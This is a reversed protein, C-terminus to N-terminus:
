QAKYYFSGNTLSITYSPNTSLYMIGAFTGVYYDNLMDYNTINVQGSKSYFITNSTTSSIVFRNNATTNSSDHTFIGLGKSKICMFFLMTDNPTQSDYYGEVIKLTDFANEIFNCSLYPSSHSMQGLKFSIHNPIPNSISTIVPTNSSSKKVCAILFFTILVVFIKNIMM